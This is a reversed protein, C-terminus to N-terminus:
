SVQPHLILDYLHAQRSSRVAPEALSGPLLRRLHARLSQPHEGNKMRELYADAEEQSMQGAGVAADLRAGAHRVRIARVANEFESPGAGRMRAAETETVQGTEVMNDLREILRDRNVPGTHSDGDDNMVGPNDVM